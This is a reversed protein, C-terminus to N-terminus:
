KVDHTLAWIGGMITAGTTAVADAHAPSISVGLTTALLILGQWTSRERLRAFIYDTIIKM